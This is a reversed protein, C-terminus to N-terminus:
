LCRPLPLWIATPPLIFPLRSLSSPLCPGRRPTTQTLSLLSLMMGRLPQGGDGLSLQFLSYLFNPPQTFSAVSLVKWPPLSPTPTPKASNVSGLRLGLGAHTNETQVSLSPNIQHGLDSRPVAERFGELLQQATEGRVGPPLQTEFGGVVAEKETKM